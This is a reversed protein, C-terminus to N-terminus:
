PDQFPFKICQGHEAQHVYGGPCESQTKQGAQIICHAHLNLSPHGVGGPLGCVANLALSECPTSGDSQCAPLVGHSSNFGFLANQRAVSDVSFTSRM